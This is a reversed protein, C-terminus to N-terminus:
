LRYRLLATAILSGVYLSGDHERVGTAVSFRADGHSQLNHTVAGTADFGFVLAMAAPAPQLAAPLNWVAKRLLPPKDALRDLLANRESAVACWLTGGPGLSLNDPFGPVQAFDEILGQHTGGLPIRVIRHLGTEALMLASGDDTLAVGNPFHLGDILTTVSGDPDRRLLRGTGSHELLDGKYHHIPFRRSSDTFYVTGDDAVTANNTFALPQGGVERVLVRVSGDQPDVELLGRDADCVLLLGNSWLELGLPRGGTRAVRRIVDGGDALALISGDLTGTFVTGDATVVVDEPGTGPVPWADAAALADNRAFPGTLGPDPPPSWVVPDIPPKPVSTESTM